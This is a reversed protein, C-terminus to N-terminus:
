VTKPSAGERRPKKRRLWTAENHLPKRRNIEVERGATDDIPKRGNIEVERGATDDAAQVEVGTISRRREARGKIRQPGGVVISTEQGEVEVGGAVTAEVYNKADVTMGQTYNKADVAMRQPGEGRGVEVSGTKIAETVRWYREQGDLFWSQILVKRATEEVRIGKLETHAESRHRKLRKVNITQFPRKRCATCEWGNQVTLIAQAESGDEPLEITSHKYDCPFRDRYKAAARWIDKSVRHIRKLHQVLGGPEVAQKCPKCILVGFARNLHILDSLESPIADPVAVPVPM